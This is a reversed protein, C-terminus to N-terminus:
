DEPDILRWQGCGRSHFWGDTPKITVRDGGLSNSIISEVAGDVDRLREWYCAGSSSSAEYTGPPIDDGVRFMGDGFVRRPGEAHNREPRPDSPPM